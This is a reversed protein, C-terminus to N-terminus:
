SQAAQGMLISTFNARKTKGWIDKVISISDCKSNPQGDGLESLAQLVEYGARTKGARFLKAHSAFRAM